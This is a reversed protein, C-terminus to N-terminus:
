LNYYDFFLYGPLAWIVTYCVYFLFTVFFANEKKFFLVTVIVAFVALGWLVVRHRGSVFLDAYACLFDSIFRMFQWFFNRSRGFGALWMPFCFAFMTALQIFVCVAIHKLIVNMKNLGNGVFKEGIM